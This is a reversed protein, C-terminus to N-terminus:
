LTEVVLIRVVLRANLTEINSFSPLLLVTGLHRLERREHAGGKLFPISLRPQDSNAPLRLPEQVPAKIEPSLFRALRAQLLELLRSMRLDLHILPLWVLILILPPWRVRKLSASIIRM